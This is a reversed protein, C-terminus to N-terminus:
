CCRGQIGGVSGAERMGPTLGGLGKGMDGLVSGVCKGGQVQDGLVWCLALHAKLNNIKPQINLSVIPQESLHPLYVAFQGQHLHPSGLPLLSLGPPCLHTGAGAQSGM